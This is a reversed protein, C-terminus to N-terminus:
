SWNAWEENKQELERELEALQFQHDRLAQPDRYVVESVLAAQLREREAELRMIDQELKEFRYPNRIKASPARSATAQKAAQQAAQAAAQEARRKAEARQRAEAAGREGEAAAAEGELVARYDSYNGKFERLGAPSLEWIRNCLNDLFERDHSICLLSGPFQALLEELATRAALDLHNTPEDLALWSPEQLLLRALAVRAREGGSLGRIAKDVEEGRFLFLALHKRIQEDTLLPHDGRITEYPTREPDLEASEQDFYGCFAKHGRLLEGGLIPARGALTKLLTTKGAGNPGVIGIREGRSIRLELGRHLATSGFGIALDQAALVSEGSRPVERFRLVPKRIDDLPRELREVRELRKQRGKAEATRQSGMHKKIFAQEKRITEQQNQYARLEATIREQRLTVFKSYNGPYRRVQGFELECMGDVVRDLLRRDHSVLLVARDFDRLYQELWEIGSLDLHNTPEDLLLLDPRRVLERALAVRSKEGGSLTAAERRWLAPALGIGTLVREILNETNWGALHSLRETLEGYRVMARELAEGQAGELERELAALAAQTSRTEELGAEVYDFALVGAAFSPRQAVYGLTAGRALTLSGGDLPEGGVVLRLLTSKGGGNRGVLGLKEGPEIRLSLGRLVEQGGYHRKLNEAILLSM